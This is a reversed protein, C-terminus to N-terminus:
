GTGRTQELWDKFTILPGYERLETAYGGTANERQVEAAERAARYERSLRARRRCANCGCYPHPNTMTPLCKCGIHSM